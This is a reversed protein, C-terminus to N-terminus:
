SYVFLVKFGHAKAFILASYVISWWNMKYRSRSKRDVILPWRPIKLEEFCKTVFESAKTVMLFQYRSIFTIYRYYNSTAAHINRYKAKWRKCPRPINQSKSTLQFTNCLQYLKVYKTSYWFCKWTLLSYNDITQNSYRSKWIKISGKVALGPYQCIDTPYMKKELFADDSCRWSTVDSWSSTMLHFCKGRQQGKHPSNVPWRHIGRMFALSSSSQHKRQNAGSYVSAYVAALSTSEFTMASM